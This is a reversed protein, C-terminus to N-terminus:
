EDFNLLNEGNFFELEGGSLKNIMWFVPVRLVSHIFEYLTHLKM